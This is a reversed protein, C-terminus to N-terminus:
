ALPGAIREPVVVIPPVQADASVTVSFTGDREVGAVAIERGSRGDLVRVAAAPYFGQGRIELVSRGQSSVVATTVQPGYGDRQVAGRFLDAAFYGAFLAVTTVLPILAYRLRRSSDAEEKEPSRYDVTTDVLHDEVVQELKPLGDTLVQLVVRERQRILDPGVLLDDETVCHAIATKRPPTSSVNLLEVIPVGLHLRIPRGQDYRDSGLAFRGTNRIEVTVTHPELVPKDSHSVILAGLEEAGKTLLPAPPLTRITLRRRPPRVAQAAYFAATLAVVIGLLALVATLRNFPEGIFLNGASFEGQRTM